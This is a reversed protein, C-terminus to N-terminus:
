QTNATDFSTTHQLSLPHSFDSLFAIESFYPILEASYGSYDHSSSVSGSQSFGKSENPLLTIGGIPCDVLDGNEDFIAVAVFVDYSEASNNTATAQVDPAGYSDIVSIGSFDISPVDVDHNYATYYCHLDASALGDFTDFIEISAYASEGPSIVNPQITIYNETYLLTGNSNCLDISSDTAFIVPVSGTNKIEAVYVISDVVSSSSLASFSVECSASAYLSDDSPADSTSSEAESPLADSVSPKTETVAPSAEVESPPVSPLSEASYSASSADSSGCGALFLFLLAVCLSLRRNKM